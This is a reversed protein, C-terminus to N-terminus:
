ASWWARIKETVAETTLGFKQALTKDPASAGFHDIGITLGNTGVWSTWPPTRGAEISVKRIGAPLVRERYSADQTEFAELCLASVVRVKKGEAELKAKAGVALHLESGTGVLIM